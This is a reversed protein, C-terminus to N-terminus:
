DDCASRIAQWDEASLLRARPQPPHVALSRAKDIRDEIAPHSALFDLAKFRKGRHNDARARLSRSAEVLGEFARAMADPDEGIAALAALAADDARAEQRRTHGAEVVQGSLLVIQQALGTGGTVAELVMGLGANRYAATLGDRAQVHGIEHALVAALEDPQELAEFLGSTLMIRGGPLALANPARFRVFEIQIPHGPQMVEALRAALPAIATQAAAAKPGNCPKLLLRAQAAVNDGLKREIQPPTARALPGAALPAGFFLAAAVAASGAVLGVGLALWRARARGEHFAAPAAAVLAPLLAKPVILRLDPESQYGIRLEADFAGLNQLKAFALLQPEGEGQLELGDPRLRVRVTQAIPRKGDFLRGEVADM